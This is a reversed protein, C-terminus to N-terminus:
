LDAAKEVRIEAQIDAVQEKLEELGGVIDGYAQLAYRIIQRRLQEDSL